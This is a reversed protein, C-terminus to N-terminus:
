PWLRLEIKLTRCASSYSTSSQQALKRISKTPSMMMRNSVDLITEESLVLPRWFRPTDQVYDTMCFKKILDRMTDRNPVKSNPFCEKFRQKANETYKDDEPFVYELLFARDETSFM